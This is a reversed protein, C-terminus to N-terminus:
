RVNACVWAWHGSFLALAFFTVSAVIPSAALLIGTRLWFWTVRGFYHVLIAASLASVGMVHVYFAKRELSLAQAINGTGSKLDGACISQQRYWWASTILVAGIVPFLVLALPRLRISVMRATASLTRDAIISM